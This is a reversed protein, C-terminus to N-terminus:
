KYTLIFFNIQEVHKHLKERNEKQLLEKPFLKSGIGVAAVGANFWSQLDPQTPEVGGTAMLLMHPFVDKIAKIFAPGGLQRAPFIKILKLKWNEATGVETPTACGPIWLIDAAQAADAIEKLLLPSVLFEAGADIFEKAQEANKITGVGLLMGPLEEICIKKLQKFLTLSDSLRNTFEFALINNDYCSQLVRRYEDFQSSTFLPLFKQQLISQQINVSSKTSM